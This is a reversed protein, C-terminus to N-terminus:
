KTFKDRCTMENAGQAINRDYGMFIGLTKYKEENEKMCQSINARRTLEQQNPLILKMAVFGVLAGVSLVIIWSKLESM